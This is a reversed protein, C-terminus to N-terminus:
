LNSTASGSSIQTVQSIPYSTGNVVVYIQGNEIQVSQVTGTNIGSYLLQTGNSETAQIQYDYTGDPVRVGQSNLANWQYTNAGANLEGLNITDMVNGNSDTIQLTASANAPLTFGIKGAQGSIVDVQNNQTSVDKGILTAAQLQESSAFNTEFKTFSNALNTTQETATLQSLQSVFKTSDTPNLPDQNQLETILLQLFANEGLQNSSGSATGTQNSSVTGVSITPNISSISLL